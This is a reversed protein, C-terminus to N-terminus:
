TSTVAQLYTKMDALRRSSADVHRCTNMFVFRYTELLTVNETGSVNLLINTDLRQISPKQHVIFRGDGSNPPKPYLPHRLFANSPCERLNKRHSIALFRRSRGTVLLSAYLLITGGERAQM